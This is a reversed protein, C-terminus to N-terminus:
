NAFYKLAETVNGVERVILGNESMEISPKPVYSTGCVRYGLDNRCEKRYEYKGMIGQGEPVLIVKAGAEKAAKLKEDIGGVKGITGDGNVTGTIMVDASLNRGEIAAVTAIALAAGASPGEIVNRRSSESYIDYLINYKSLDTGTVNAAVEKATQISFQTDVFYLLHDINTLTKGSGSMITVDFRGHVGKGDSGVAPVLISASRGEPPIEMGGENKGAQPVFLAWLLAGIVVLLLFNAPSIRM